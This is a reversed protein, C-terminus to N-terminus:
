YRPPKTNSTEIVTGSDKKIELFIPKKAKINIQNM